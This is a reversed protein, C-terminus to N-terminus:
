VRINQLSTALAAVAEINERRFRLNMFEVTLGGVRFGSGM